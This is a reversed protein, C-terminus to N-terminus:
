SLDVYIGFHDSVPKSGEKYYGQWQKVQTVRKSWDTSLCIHDINYGIEDSATVCVLNSRQLQQELLARGEPTGYRFPKHLCENFDGAVCFPLESNRLTAWNKGHWHISEYHRQWMKAEKERVGDAAWTIITGYVILNGLPSQIEACVATFPEATPIQQKVPYRSWITTCNEGPRYYSGPPYDQSPIGQHTNKLAIAHNTETLVWIDANIDRLKQLIAPNKQWGNTRPRDLNWTAIRLSNSMFTIDNQVFSIM